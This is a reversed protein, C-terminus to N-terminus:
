NKKQITLESLNFNPLLKFGDKIDQDSIDTHANGLEVKYIARCLKVLFDQNISIIKDDPALKLSKAVSNIYGNTDNEFSPAYEHIIKRITNKGKNIDHILDIMQARIGFSLYTFQEFRSDKGNAIKGVWKNHTKVLNGPNNNRLGRIKHNNLFSKTM